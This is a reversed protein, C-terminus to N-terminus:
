DRIDIAQASVAQTSSRQVDNTDSQVTRGNCPTLTPTTPEADIDLKDSTVTHDTKGPLNYGLDVTIPPGMVLKTVAVLIVAILLGCSVGNGFNGKTDM